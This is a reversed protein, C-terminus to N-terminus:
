TIGILQKWRPWLREWSRSARVHAHCRRGLAELDTSVLAEILANRVDDVSSPAVRLGCGGMATRLLPHHSWLVPRGIAMARLAEDPAGVDVAPVFVALHSDALTQDPQGDEPALTVPQGRAAIRLQAVYRGDGVAGAVVLHVRRKYSPPLRSVADITVHQGRAPAIVGVHVVRLPGPAPMARPEGVEMGVPLVETRWAPVGAAAVRRRVGEHAVLVVDAAHGGIRTWPLARLRSSTEAAHVVAVTRVGLSPMGLGAVLVVDPRWQAVQRRASRWLRLWAGRRRRGRLDVGVSGQPLREAARSFGAVLRVDGHGRLKRALRLVARPGNGRADPPVAPAVILARFM